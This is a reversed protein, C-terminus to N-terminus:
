NKNAHPRNDGSTKPALVLVNELRTLDVSAQVDIQQFIGSSSRRVDTVVGILTGKPFIGDLGSAIVRDGTQVTFDKIVYRLELKRGEVGEVIGEARSNQVIADISSTSDTLLMVKATRSTVMVVQGVIAVGDIVAMGESVGDDSGRDITVGQIWNSPDRGIVAAPIRQLDPTEPYQLLRRLRENEYKYELLRSNQSEIAQIRQKLEDNERAVDLLMVYHDWLDGSARASKSYGLEFPSLMFGVVKAGWKPLDSNHQSAAM